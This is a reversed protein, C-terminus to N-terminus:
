PKLVQIVEVAWQDDRTGLRGTFRTTGGVRLQVLNASDAPLDLVDGVKLQPLERATIQPGLLEANVAIRVNDFAANWAPSKVPAPIAAATEAPPQLEARLKQIIPELTSFPLALTVQGTVEGIKAEFRALLLSSDAPSTQLYRGDSEHGLLTPKLERLSTWHGCWTEVILQAVQDLLAIEIETLERVPLNADGPGGMLRDSLALALAPSIELVGIGRLPEAKFMTLHTPRALGGAFQRFSPTQLSALTLEFETRFLVALRTACSRRIEQHDAHLRRLEPDSFLSPQSFTYPQPGAAAVATKEPAPATTQNETSEM